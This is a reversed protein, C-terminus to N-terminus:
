VMGAAEPARGQLLDRYIRMTADGMQELSFHRV